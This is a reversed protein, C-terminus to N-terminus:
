AIVQENQEQYYSPTQHTRWFQILLTMGITGIPIGIYSWSGMEEVLSFDKAADGLSYMQWVAVSNNLIHLLCPIVINGTKYYIIGFIIGIAAAFPVQAPNIHILGFALASAIIAVWKNVGSRLMYGLVGERFVFEEIIPGIIGISIAGIFSNSMDTFQDELLNPLDIIEELIDLVFICLIAGLIALAGAKWNIMKFDFVTNWDIMKLLAIIAVTAIGGLIVGWALANSGVASELMSQDGTQAVKKLLDPDKIVAVAYIAVGAITQMLTFVILALIPYLIKKM